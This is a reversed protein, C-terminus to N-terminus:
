KHPCALQCSQETSAPLAAVDVQHLQVHVRVRPQGAVLLALAVPGDAPHAFIPNRNGFQLRKHLTQAGKATTAMHEAQVQVTASTHVRVQLQVGEFCM